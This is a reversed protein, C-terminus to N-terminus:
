TKTTPEETLAWAAVQQGSVDCVATAFMGEDALHTICQDTNWSGLYGEIPFLRYAIPLLRYAITFM